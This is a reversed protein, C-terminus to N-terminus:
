EGHIQRKDGGVAEIAPLIRVPSFARKQM